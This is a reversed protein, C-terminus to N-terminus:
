RKTKSVVQTLTRIHGTPQNKHNELFTIGIPAGSPLAANWFMSARVSMKLYLLGMKEIAVVIYANQLVAM